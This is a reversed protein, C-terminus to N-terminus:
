DLFSHSTISRDETGEQNYKKIQKMWYVFAVFGILVFIWNLANAGWWSSLELERLADLPIFLVNEFINAIGEFFGRWTM